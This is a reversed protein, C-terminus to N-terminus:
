KLERWRGSLIRREKQGEQLPHITLITVENESVTYAIMVDRSKGYLQVTMIAITHDTEADIFREKAFDLINKPLDYDINRLQLRFKLHKSYIVHM